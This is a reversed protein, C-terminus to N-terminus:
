RAEVFLLDYNGYRGIPHVARKATAATELFAKSGRIAVYAAGAGARLWAENVNAALIAQGRTYFQASFPRRRVFILPAVFKKPKTQTLDSEARATQGTQHREYAALLAQASKQQMVDPQVWVAAAGFMLGLTILIGACLMRNINRGQRAQVALWQGAGIAAAPVAPLVYALGANRAPTFLLLPTLAWFLLYSRWQNEGSGVGATAAKANAIHAAATTMGPKRWRWVAIPILVSWPLLGALAFVWITGMPSRHVHGFMDGHWGPTIFRQFHEGILFYRLFGPTSQEAVLYWPVSLLMTLLLGRIWPLAHWVDRWRSTFATWFFLPIGILLAAVPGKALLGASVGGFFFLSPLWRIYVRPLHGSGTITPAELAFWFGAMALTTGFTLAIDTTVAGAVVFFVPAASIFAVAPWAAAPDRRYAMWAILCIIALSLILHPLRASFESVGFLDFSGATLWFALPPKGWFPVGYDFWPTVWDNLEAMKRSIEGYRAETTDMLPVVIM